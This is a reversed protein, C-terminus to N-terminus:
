RGRTKTVRGYKGGGGPLISLSGTRVAAVQESIVEGVKASIEELSINYMIDIETGIESIMRGYTKPGIGPLLHLPVHAKYPPRTQVAETTDAIQHIRDWVGHVMDAGCSPCLFIAKDERALYECKSCFSRYYKGLLPELGHTAVIGSGEPRLTAKWQTFNLKPLNYVTFERGINRLSHADSNALYAYNHTDSIASAMETNASLGLELGSIQKPAAFMEGLKAVCNGYVGKHPTFAHAGVVVGGNAAVVQLWGDGSLQLRQTSLSPNTVHPKIAAAYGRLTDLDPFYALFHAAGGASSHSIEVESGFFITIGNFFAGGGTLPLLEGRSQLAELDKLVGSCAADALGVLQLGKQNKAVAAINGLTLASSATIKVPENRTTRGIHVHLDAYVLAM